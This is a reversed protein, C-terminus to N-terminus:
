GLVRRKIIREVQGSMVSADADDPAIGDIWPRSM